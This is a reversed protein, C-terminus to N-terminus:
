RVGGGLVARGIAFLVAGVLILRGIRSRMLWPVLFLLGGLGGGAQSPGEEGRRDIVDRSEHSEDWRM